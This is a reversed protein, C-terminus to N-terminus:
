NLRWAFKQIPKVNKAVLAKMQKYCYTKVQGYKFMACYFSCLHELLDIIVALNGLSFAGKARPLGFETRSM